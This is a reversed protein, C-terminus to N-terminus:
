PRSCVVAAGPKDRSRYCLNEVQTGGRRMQKRPADSTGFASRGYPRPCIVSSAADPPPEGWAERRQSPDRSQGPRTGRRVANPKYPLQVLRGATLGRAGARLLEHELGGVTYPVGDGADAVSRPPMRDAPSGGTPMCPIAGFHSGCCHTSAVAAAAAASRPSGRAPNEGMRCALPGGKSFRTACDDCVDPAM